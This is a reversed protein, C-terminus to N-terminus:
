EDYTFFPGNKEQVNAGMRNLINTESQASILEAIFVAMYRLEDAIRPHREATGEIALCLVPNEKKLREYADYLYEKPENNAQDIIASCVEETVRPLTM